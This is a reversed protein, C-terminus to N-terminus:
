YLEKAISRILLNSHVGLLITERENATFRHYYSMLKKREYKVTEVVEMKRYFFSKHTIKVLHQAEITFEDYM